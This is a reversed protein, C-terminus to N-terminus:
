RLDIERIEPRYLADVSTIQFDLRALWPEGNGYKGSGGAVVVGGDNFPLIRQPRRPLTDPPFIRRENVVGGLADLHIFYPRSLGALNEANGSILYGGPIAKMDFLQKQDLTDGVIYEFLPNFELDTHRVIPNYYETRRKTIGVVVYTNGIQRVFQGYEVTQSPNTRYWLSDGAGSLRLMYIDSQRAFQAGTGGVITYGGDATALIGYSPNLTPFDRRWVLDANRDLKMVMPRVPLRGSLTMGVIVFGSDLTPEVASIYDHRDDGYGKEWVVGGSSDVLAIYIDFDTTTDSGLTTSRGFVLMGAGQRFANTVIINKPTGARRLWLSDGVANVRILTLKYDLTFSSEKVSCVLMMGGDDTAVVGHAENGYAGDPIPSYSREWAFEQGWVLAPSLLLTLLLLATTARRDIRIRPTPILIM